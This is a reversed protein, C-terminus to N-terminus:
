ITCVPSRARASPLPPPPDHCSVKGNVSVNTFTVNTSAPMLSCRTNVNVNENVLMAYDYTTDGAEKFAIHLTSNEGTNTNSGSVTWTKGDDSLSMFSTLKDGAKVSISPATVVPYTPDRCQAMGNASALISQASNILM